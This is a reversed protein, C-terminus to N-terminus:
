AVGQEFEQVVVSPLSASERAHEITMSVLNGDRDLDVCINESIKRTEEVSRTSFELLATDTSKFYKITMAQLKSRFLTTDSRAMTWASGSSTYQEAVLADFEGFRSRLLQLREDAV